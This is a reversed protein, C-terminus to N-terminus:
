AGGEEGEKGVRHTRHRICRHTCQRATQLEVVVEEMKETLKQGREAECDLFESTAKGIQTECEELLARRRDSNSLDPTDITQLLSSLCEQTGEGGVEKHLGNEANREMKPGRAHDTEVKSDEM